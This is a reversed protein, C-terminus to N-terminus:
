GGISEKEDNESKTSLERLFVPIQNNIKNDDYQLARPSLLILCSFIMERPASTCYNESFTLTLITSRDEDM